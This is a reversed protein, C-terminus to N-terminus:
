NSDVLSHSRQPSLSLASLQTEERSTRRASLNGSFKKKTWFKFRERKCRNTIEGIGMLEM